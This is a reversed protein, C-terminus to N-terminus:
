RMVYSTLAAAAVILVAIFLWPSSERRENGRKASNVMAELSAPPPEMRPVDVTAPADPPPPTVLGRKRSSKPSDDSEGSV